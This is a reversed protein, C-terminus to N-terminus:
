TLAVKWIQYEACRQVLKIQYSKERYRNTYNPKGYFIKVSESLITITQKRKLMARLVCQRRPSKFSIKFFYNDIHHWHNFAQSYRTVNKESSHGQVKSVIIWMPAPSPKTSDPLLGNCSGINVLDINGYPTVLGCHTSHDYWLFTVTPIIVYGSM